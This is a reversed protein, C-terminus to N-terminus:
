IGVLGNNHVTVEGMFNGKNSRTRGQKVTRTKATLEEMLEHFSQDLMCLHLPSLNRVTEALDDGSIGTYHAEAVFGLRSEERTKSLSVVTMVNSEEAKPIEKVYLKIMALQPPFDTIKEPNLFHELDKSDLGQNQRSWLASLGTVLQAVQINVSAETNESTNEFYALPVTRGRVQSIGNYSRITGMTNNMWQATHADGVVVAIVQKGQRILESTVSPAIVSGSGGSGSSVVINLEEPEHLQVLEPVSEIIAASLERRLGGSGDTDRLLYCDKAKVDKQLDSFATDVYTVQVNAIGAEPQNRMPEFMSAIKVGTGGCGYVRIQGVPKKITEPTQM